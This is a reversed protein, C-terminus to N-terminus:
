KDFTFFTEYRLGVRQSELILVDHPRINGLNVNQGCLNILFTQSKHEPAEFIIKSPDVSAVIDSVLDSRISGDPRFIGATGSDRGETIVYRCGADLLAKIETIWETIPMHAEVDKTGVEALVTFEDRLSKVINVLDKLSLSLVGTSVELTLINLSKLYDVYWNLANQHYFKEFLTGGFYVEVGNDQYLKVKDALRPAVYASGIGLKAIDIYEGFDNLLNSLENITLGLDMICTLGFTRPKKPREPLTLYGETM